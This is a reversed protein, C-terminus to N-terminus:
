RADAAVSRCSFAGVVLPQARGEQRVVRDLGLLIFLDRGPSVPRRCVAPVGLVDTDVEDRLQVTMLAEGGDLALEVRRLM